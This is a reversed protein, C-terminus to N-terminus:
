RCRPHGARSGDPPPNPPQRRHPPRRRLRGVPPRRDARRPGTPARSPHEVLTTSWAARVPDSLTARIVKWSNSGTDRKTAPVTPGGAVAGEVQLGAIASAHDCHGDLLLLHRDQRVADVVHQVLQRRRRGDLGPLGATRWLVGIWELSRELLVPPDLGQREGPVLPTLTEDDLAVVVVRVLRSAIPRARPRHHRAPRPSARRASSAGPSGSGGAPAPRRVGCGTSRRPRGAERGKRRRGGRGSPGCRGAPWHSGDSVAAEPRRRRRPAARPDRPRRALRRSTWGRRAPAAGRGLMATMGDVLRHAPFRRQPVERVAREGATLDGRVEDGLRHSPPRAASRGARRGARDRPPGASSRCGARATASSLVHVEHRVPWTGRRTSARARPSVGDPPGDTHDVQRSSTRERATSSATILLESRLPDWQRRSVVAPEPGDVVADAETCVRLQPGHQPAPRASGSTSPSRARRSRRSSTSSSAVLPRVSANSARSGWASTAARRPRTSLSSRRRRWGRGLGPPRGHGPGRESGGGSRTSLFQARNKDVRDPPNVHDPRALPSADGGSLTQAHLTPRM